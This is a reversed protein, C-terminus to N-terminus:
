AQYGVPPMSDEVCWRAPHTTIASPVSIDNSTVEIAVSAGDHVISPDDMDVLQLHLFYRGATVTLAETTWEVNFTGQTPLATEMRSVAAAVGDPRVFGILLGANSIDTPFRVHARLSAAQGTVLARLGDAGSVELIDIETSSPRLTERPQFTPVLNAEYYSAAEQATGAFAVEGRHLMLGRECTERVMSMQHSVIVVTRDEEILERMKGYSRRRFRADGVALVEDVLLIEPDTHVAVSFGLRAFMGSSYRKVPTDIFEELEAFAVIDDLRAAIDRRSMGLIAGNLFVNERGTLEHHFGAGVEILSSMRGNVTVKGETPKTVRSIVKLLTSKGAGNAGVLALSGGQELGFSVDRLAWLEQRERRRLLEKGLHRFGGRAGLKYRKSVGDLSIAPTSM